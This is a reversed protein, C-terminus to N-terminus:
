GRRAGGEEVMAEEEDTLVPRDDVRSRAATSRNKDIAAMLRDFPQNFKEVGEAELM